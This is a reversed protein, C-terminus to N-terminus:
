RRRWGPWSLWERPPPRVSPLPTRAARLATAVLRKLGRSGTPDGETRRAAVLYATGMWRRLGRGVTREPRERWQRTWRRVIRDLPPLLPTLDYYVLDVPCLDAENMMRRLKAAPIARIGSVAAGHQRDAPRGLLREVRGLARLLPWYVCWEFLRYPSHPNLMTVVVLAGPRAVRGLERLARAAECYELVGMALVIDFSEDSLPLAEARGVMLNVDHESGVRTTAARVMAPSRDLATIRFDDPRTDLLRRLLIGPGCGVDLLDGSPHRRLCESVAHLRSHFYRASPGWGEHAAAYGGAAAADNYQRSVSDDRTTPSRMM